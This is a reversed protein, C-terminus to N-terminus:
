IAAVYDINLGRMVDVMFDSGCSDQTIGVSPPAGQESGRSVIQVPRRQPADAGVNEGAKVETAIVGQTVAGTGALTATKLFERRGVANRQENSRSTRRPM